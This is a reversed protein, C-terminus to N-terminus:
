LQSLYSTLEQSDFMVNLVELMAKATIGEPLGLSKLLASRKAGSDPRGTLGLAFMDAKTIGGKDGLSVGDDFTAGAMTLADVITQPRMAEVGLYGDASPQAKRREKGPIQPIYAQKLEIGGLVSKLRSRIKFGSRDSDTLIVVGRDGAAARILTVLDSDNYIGFGKTEIVDCDVAAKVASVDCKGEVIVLERIRKREAM